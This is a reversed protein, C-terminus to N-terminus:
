KKSLVRLWREQFLSTHGIPHSQVGPFNIAKVDHYIVPPAEKPSVKAFNRARQVLLWRMGIEVQSLGVGIIDVPYLMFRTVWNDAPSVPSKSGQVADMEELAQILKKYKASGDLDGAVAREWKKFKQYAFFYSQPLFGYDRMGLRLSDFRSVHGHPHWIASCTETSPSAIIKRGYLLKLDEIRVSKISVNGSKSVPDQIKDARFAKLFRDVSLEKGLGAHALHDFNLSVLHIGGQKLTQGLQQIVKNSRYKAQEKEAEYKLINCLSKKLLKEEKAAEGRGAAKEAVLQEWALVPDDACLPLNPTLKNEEALIRLLHNWSALPSHSDKGLVQKHLGSGIVIVRPKM